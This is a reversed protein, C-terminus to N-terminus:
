RPFRLGSKGFQSVCDCVEGANVTCSWGDDTAAECNCTWSEDDDDEDDDIENEHDPLIAQSLPTGDPLISDVV